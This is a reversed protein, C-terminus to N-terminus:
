GWGLESVVNVFIALPDVQAGVWVGASVSGMTLNFRLVRLQDLLEYSGIGFTPRGLALRQNM